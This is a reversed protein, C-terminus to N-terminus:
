DDESAELKDVRETLRKFDQVLKPLRLLNGIVRLAERHELAPTWLLQKGDEVDTYVGSQAGIKVGDGIVINDAVGVQGALVVGDGIRCSGSIGVQSTILCCKGITVNHAIQVLNDVKTGAGIRTEGFKARDVCCNAGLEVFDEIVVTGNHPILRHAGDIFSYGFGVGGVTSNAQIVVNDGITCNYYVVVNSDFRTNCGVRTNEGVRCGAAIVTGAGIEVNDDIVVYPGISVGDGLKADAGIRATPDIGAAPAKLKPAFVKLTEILSADVNEVVVQAGRFGQVARSVLVAAATSKKLEGARKNDSLFTIKDAGACAVPGVGTVEVTGDGVVEAGIREALECINIKM